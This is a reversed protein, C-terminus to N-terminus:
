DGNWIVGFAIDGGDYELELGNKTKKKEKGTKRRLLSELFPTFLLSRISLSSTHSGRRLKCIPQKSLDVSYEKNLDIPHSLPTNCPDM